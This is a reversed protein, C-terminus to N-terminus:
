DTDDSFSHSRKRGRNGMIDEDVDSDLHGPPSKNFKRALKRKQDESLRREDEDSSIDGDSYKPSRGDESDSKRRASKKAAEKKKSKEHEAQLNRMKEHHKRKEKAEKKKKKEEKLERKRKNIAINLKRQFSEEETLAIKQKNHQSIQAASAQYSLKTSLNRKAHRQKEEKGRAEDERNKINDLIDGLVSSQKLLRERFSLPM